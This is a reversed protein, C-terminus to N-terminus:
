KWNADPVIVVMIEGECVTSKLRAGMKLAAVLDGGTFM